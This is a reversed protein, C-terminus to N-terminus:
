AGRGERAEPGRTHDRLGLLHDAGSRIWTCVRDGRFRFGWDPIGFAPFLTGAVETLVLWALALYAIAVRIVNRRKLEHYLSM